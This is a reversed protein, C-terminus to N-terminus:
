HDFNERAREKERRHMFSAVHRLKFVAFVVALGILVYVIPNHLSLSGLGTRFLFIGGIAHASIAIISLVIMGVLLLPRKKKTERNVPDHRGIIGSERKVSRRSHNLLSRGRAAGKDEAM